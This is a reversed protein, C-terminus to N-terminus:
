DSEKLLLSEIQKCDLSLNQLSINNHWRSIQWVNVFMRSSDTILNVKSADVHHWDVSAEKIRCGIKCAVFLMEMDFGFGKIKVKSFIPRVVERRFMKFGCQTDKFEMKLLAHVWSSFVFGMLKRYFKAEVKRPGQSLSRSGIVMHYGQQFYHINREIEYAPTSGDADMFSVIKGKARCLGCKVAAGKGRNRKFKIVRANSHTLCLDRAVEYTKDTSGDDVIIIEYTLQSSSIFDIIEHFFKPLRKAENKAPIIISVDISETDYSM